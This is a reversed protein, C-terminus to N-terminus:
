VRNNETKIETSSLGAKPKNQSPPLAHTLWTEALRYCQQYEESTLSTESFLGRQWVAENKVFGILSPKTFQQDLFLLWTHGTLSAVHQRPFYSLAAQRLLTNLDSLSGNHRYTALVALASKQAKRHQFYRHIGRLAVAIALLLIIALMWWGWALAWQSPPPPLVIDALPLTATPTSQVSM